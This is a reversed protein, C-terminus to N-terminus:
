RASGTAVSYIYLPDLLNYYSKRADLGDITTRMVPAPTGNGAGAAHERPDEGKPSLSRSKQAASQGGAGRGPPPPSMSMFVAAEPLLADRQQQQQQAYFDHPQQLQLQHMGLSPPPSTGIRHAAAQVYLEGGTIRLGLQEAVPVFHQQRGVLPADLASAPEGLYSAASGPRPSASQEQAAGGSATGGGAVGLVLREAPPPIRPTTLLSGTLSVNDAAGVLSATDGGGASTVKKKRPSLRRRPLPPLSGVVAQQRISGLETELKTELSGFKEGLAEVEATIKEMFELMRADRERLHAESKANIDKQQTEWSDSRLKTETFNQKAVEQFRSAQAVQMTSRIIRGKEEPLVASRILAVSATSQLVSTVLEMYTTSLEFPDLEGSSDLDMADFFAGADNENLQLKEFLNRFAVSKQWNEIFFARTTNTNVVPSAVENEEEEVTKEGKQNRSSPPKSNKGAGSFNGGNGGAAVNPFRLLDGIVDMKQDIDLLEAVTRTQRQATELVTVTVLNMLGFGSVAIFVLFYFYPWISDESLPVVMESWGDLTMLRFSYVIADRTTSFSKKAANFEAEEDGTQQHAAATSTLSTAGTQAGAAVACTCNSNTASTTALARATTASTSSKEDGGYTLSDNQGIIVVSFMAFLFIIIMMFSVTYLLPPLSFFFLQVVAWLHEFITLLRLVRLARLVRLMRMVDALGGTDDGGSGVSLGGTTVLPFVLEFLLGSGVVAVDLSYQLNLVVNRVGFTLPDFFEIFPNESTPGADHSVRESKKHTHTHGGLVGLFAGCRLGLEATFVLLFLLDGVIIGSAFDEKDEANLQYEFAMFFCNAAIAFTVLADFQPSVVLKQLPTLGKRHRLAKREKVLNNANRADQLQEIKQLREVHLKKAKERIRAAAKKAMLASSFGMAGGPSGGGRAGPPGGGGAPAPGNSTPSTTSGAALGALFPNPSKGRSPSPTLGSGPPLFPNMKLPPAAGAASAGPELQAEGADEDGLSADEGDNMAVEAAAGAGAGVTSARAPQPSHVAKGGGATVKQLSSGKSSGGALSEPAPASAPRNTQQHAAKSLAGLTLKSSAGDESANNRSGASVVQTRYGDAAAGQVM